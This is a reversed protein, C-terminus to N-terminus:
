DTDDTGLGDELYVGKMYDISAQGNKNLFVRDYGELGHEEYERGQFAALMDVLFLCTYVGSATCFLEKNSRGKGTISYSDKITYMKVLKGEGGYFMSTNIVLHTKYTQNMATCINRAITIPTRAM